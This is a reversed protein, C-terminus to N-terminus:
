GGNRGVIWPTRSFLYNGKQLRVQQLIAADYNVEGIENGASLTVNGLAVVAGNVVAPPSMHFQGGVWIVGNFFADSQPNLTLNGLVILIGSGNLKKQPNFTANGKVVILSMTPLPDPLQKEDDVVIDAMTLLEQETVGFVDVLQFAGSTTNQPPNGTVTGKDTIAGTDAPYAIGIGSAGGQVRGSKTVNVADARLANIAANAPLQLGLREIESRMTARSLIVNPAEGPEKAADNRVYIIGESELWWVTGDQAKGRRRSVDVVSATRLSYRGWVRGPTSVEFSRVLGASPDETENVPPNATLDRKPAFVTVPQQNQHVFWSLAENLGASAANLSQGSSTLQRAVMRGSMEAMQLMTLLLLMLLTSGLLVTVLAIGRENRRSRRKM